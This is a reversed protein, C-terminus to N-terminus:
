SDSRGMVINTCFCRPCQSLRLATNASRSLEAPYFLVQIELNCNSCHAPSPTRDKAEAADDGAYGKFLEVLDDLAEFEDPQMYDAWADLATRAASYDVM